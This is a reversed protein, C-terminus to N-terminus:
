LIPTRFCECKQQIQESVAFTILIQLVDDVADVPLDCAKGIRVTIQCLCAFPKLDLRDIVQITSCPHLRRDRQQVLTCLRSQCKDPLAHIQAPFRVSRCFVNWLELRILLLEPMDKM